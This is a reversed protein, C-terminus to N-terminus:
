RLYKGTKKIAEIAEATYLEPDLELGYQYIDKGNKKRATVEVVFGAPGLGMGLTEKDTERKGSNTIWREVDERRFGWRNIGARLEAHAAEMNPPASFWVILDVTDKLDNAAFTINQTVLNEVANPGLFTFALDPGGPTGIMPGYKTGALGVAQRTLERSRLDFRAHKSKKIEAIGADTLLSFGQENVTPGAPEGGKHIWGMCGSLLLATIILVGHLLKM